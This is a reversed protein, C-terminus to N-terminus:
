NVTSSRLEHGAGEIVARNFEKWKDAHEGLYATYVYPGMSHKYKKLKRRVTKLVNDAWKIFDDPKKIMIMQRTDVYETEFYLRGSEIKGDKTISRDFHLVPLSFDDVLWYGFADIHKLRVDDFDSKRILYVRREEKKLDRVVSDPVTSIKNDFHFYPLLVIDGFTKLLKDFDAQDDQHLFFNIQRGM